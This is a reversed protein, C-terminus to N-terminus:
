RLPRVRVRFAGLLPDAELGDAFPEEAFAPAFAAGFDDALFAFAGALFVFYCRPQALSM